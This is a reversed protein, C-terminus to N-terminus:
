RNFLTQNQCVWKCILRCLKYIPILNGYLMYVVLNSFLYTLEAATRNVVTTKYLSTDELSELHTNFLAKSECWPDQGVMHFNKEILSNERHKENFTNVAGKIIGIM